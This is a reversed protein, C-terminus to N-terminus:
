GGSIALLLDVSDDEGAPTALQDPALMEGNLFIRHSARLRGLRDFLVNELPRYESALENLAAEVTPATVNISRRYDTFRLLAGNVHVIM